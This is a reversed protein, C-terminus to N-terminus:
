EKGSLSNRRQHSAPSEPPVGLHDDSRPQSGDGAVRLGALCVRVPVGDWSGVIGPRDLCDATRKTSNAPTAPHPSAPSGIPGTADSGTAVSDPAGAVASGSNRVAPLPGRMRNEDARLPPISM